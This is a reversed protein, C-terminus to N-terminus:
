HVIIKTSLVVGGAQTTVIYTGPSMNDPLSVNTTNTASPAQMIPTGYLNTIKVERSSLMDDNYNTVVEITSGAQIPNPNVRLVFTNNLEIRFDCTHILQGDTTTLEASYSAFPDLQNSANQGASYYQGNGILQGNKFWKFDVFRYGGNTAPNNNVLLVNDYKQEVIEEFSFSREITIRYTLSQTGDQSTITISQKYIGPNPTDIVIQSAESATANAETSYSLVVSEDQSDCDILYYIEQEPQSYYESGITLEHISADSSEITLQQEVPAAPLYNQNGQQAATIHVIGSTQLSVLGDTSVTAPATEAEFNYTYSVPLGSSAVAHLQFDADEELHKLPIAEFSITQTAKEIVFPESVLSLQYNSGATLTGMTIAYSGADEGAERSLEGSITEGGVLAPAFTYTFTPDAEGYVKTQAADATVTIPKQTISFDNGAYTLDYNAGATLTGQNIAYDGVNEGAVRDLEGTFADGSVLAPAVTYTFTPDAEGYVKTQAADATVTIPKQTISFNAGTYTLDYNAGATLTGQNIAYDGVNEGAVRDLEGTFTDGSVLAPAVTYTFTPDAEGYVKTQAADATVTIPKQTISFNAGAYTLDYNANAALTGQNIAYDGVNEGAVRSLEGTFADGSVLAPAVTYTFTPDAEGYVKTQAADATVTIPKQTISFNDGTYTLDYNAGATLTGQNIAYDGVNEGAVRDLEGTFADGSVLAPTVTYTFTPDAEGYVKTQAADATVTIPKQTISFDNGAYTLDYNAGATLTGQNIAYNGVNEGAVRDLEGTFTDGSVLAPAVTYTFTPDAEGYVKTQAADATVTIPKQTISFDDGAYTLDYNAGATLTGQTIAYNGVNEGAVRDLEGTFTDDGVLAPAFTYTFTPDAEGYVKTQAADATVTIPKQTISFNDGTYTLDYNTGATLTGQNIAYNGVNEGAVRDLEGTFADGSVLAPAFTYTFTPDAEGYVKTQAADATVTIPKQTISFNAGTYTLDYNAGATLTGQNIAYDGVNEGAVRDLEGTFADGSVLAPAVTYTFTPDAEGYVKTQAADATVTIPKQTISFDDGAYTLDYNAGATLTGQTIAYNGVNEGAVRDLEGTFTDDGVLAPAFTYTFTPDAEGYVKTQAADATVTIPKQTISFDDGTYTLDYNAGATLTGQNIAYNGVNEGAVRDLEGTFADGSVLSPAVTYTFTPDAEGYVKTQAADATVTIPKQTISFDDGAYTLDYNAGATLTGQNIAYDGVNEGAVRDLEGTFADGSVLAPAVTYTFTPDAEGYVKTQAADATVTIPKQTISFNDGAYTLDYNAGATLTGQNIAYDSVNEGAVRDLEGTFADGGVLAPAVTYTFTPDAEGYVKTQAADATVTIPKQTISFNDGAYTLDYNAGATLTGQNIAYNGVNEGAVRDLEGTFADGSVLAPAFTYTFTPDAEGYVKTQAADATVTIPKQTIAASLSPQTLSYNFADDGTLTMATTVAIDSGVTAKAFTGSTSNGLTVADTGVVGTLTAGNITATTSGDYVKDSATAASVTLEKATIAATLSPQTLTYNAADTGSITMATAVAITSGVTAQAFTGSTSNGLTVADTGVVGTLTAGSITATTSGDYVKNAAIANTVTLGKTNVLLTQEVSEAAAHTADGSQSATIKTTGAKLITATNGSISVITPDTATYTVTLGKDTTADGLSFDADGYTKSDIADFAITQLAKVTVNVTISATATGDSIQIIFSDAGSYDTTPTYTLGSPTVASGTSTATAPFGGLSGHSPATTVTWSLADGTDTDTIDLLDNITTASANQAVSLTTSTGDNFSPTANKSGFNATLNKAEDMTISLPNDSSTVAGTWGKFKATGSPTATLSVTSGDAFKATELGNGTDIGSPSSVVTGTYSGTGSVGVELSYSQVGGSITVKSDITTGYGYSGCLTPTGNYTMVLRIYVDGNFADSPITINGSFVYTGNISHNADYILEGDDTLDGNGNFDFWIKVYETYTSNTNVTVQIPYTNGAVLSAISSSSHDFYGTQDSFSSAGSVSNGNISM